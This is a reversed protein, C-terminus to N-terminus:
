RSVTQPLLRLTQFKLCSCLLFGAISLVLSVLHGRNARVELSRNHLRHRIRWKAISIQQLINSM